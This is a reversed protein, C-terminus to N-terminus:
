TRCGSVLFHLNGPPAIRRASYDVAMMRSILEYKLGGVNALDAPPSTLALTFM